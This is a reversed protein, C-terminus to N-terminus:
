TPRTRFRRTTSATGAAPKTLVAVRGAPAPADSAATVRAAASTAALNTTSKPLPM